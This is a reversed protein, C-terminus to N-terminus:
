TRRRVQERRLFQPPPIAASATASRPEEPALQYEGDNSAPEVVEGNRPMSAGDQLDDNGQRSAGISFIRGLPSALLAPLFILDGVLAALLLTLMLKGFGQTPTFTSLAFVCLGLGGIITTQTMAPAVHRYAIFVAERRDMGKRLGARFWTLFHITDDVAVGMAVSATMMSGIDVRTGFHGM